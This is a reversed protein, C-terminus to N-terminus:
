NQFISSHTLVCSFHNSFIHIIKLFIAFRLSAMGESNRLFCIFLCNNLLQDHISNLKHNNSFHLSIRKFQGTFMSRQVPVENKVTQGFKMVVKQLLFQECCHRVIKICYSLYGSYGAWLAKQVNPRLSLNQIGQLSNQKYHTSLSYCGRAWCAIM